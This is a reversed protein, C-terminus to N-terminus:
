RPTNDTTKRQLEPRKGSNKLALLVALAPHTQRTIRWPRQRERELQEQYDPDPSFHYADIPALVALPNLSACIILDFFITGRTDLGTINGTSCIKTSGFIPQSNILRELIEEHTLQEASKSSKFPAALKLVFPESLAIDIIRKYTNTFLFPPIHHIINGM